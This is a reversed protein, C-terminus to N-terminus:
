NVNYDELFTSNKLSISRDVNFNKNEILSEINFECNNYNGELLNQNNISKKRNNKKQKKEFNNINQNNSNDNQNLINISVKSNIKKLPIQNSDIVEDNNNKLNKNYGALLFKEDNRNNEKEKLLNQKIPLKNLNINFNNINNVCNIKFSNGNNCGLESLSSGKLLHNNSSPNNLNISCFKNMEKSSNEINEIKIKM